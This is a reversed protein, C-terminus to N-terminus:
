PRVYVILQGTTPAIDTTVTVSTVVTQSTSSLGTTYSVGTIVKNGTSVEIVDVVPYSTFNPALTNWTIPINFSTLVGNGIVSSIVFTSLANVAAQGGLAYTSADGTLVTYSSGVAAQTGGASVATAVIVDGIWVAQGSAGGIFGASSVVWSKGAVSAAPYNPNAACALATPVQIPVGLNTVATNLTTISTNVTAIRGAVDTVYTLPSLAVGTATGTTVETQTAMRVSGFVTQSAVDQNSALLDYNAGVAVQTGGASAATALIIDGVNVALGSAGGILGASTVVWSKGAVSAAPYNPNTACALATPVQWPTGLATVTTTVASIRSAVDTVYTLPSLAINTATGTTVESQTAMRVNGFATTSAFDQSNDLIVYSSGVAAQTGGVSSAIAVIIDNVYVQLGSGGGILGASTVVWTKGAVSAAPYNPNAACALGTPVQLPTGLATITTNITSIRSAVDTVYTLPSLAVNTATGTTVETQTAMRVNGFVTQSAQDNINEVIYYNAGVAAQTGSASVAFAVIMDGVKVALGSAGGILGAVTVLWTKGAVTAAPYNPSASCDLGTPVQLPAALGSILGDVYGKTAADGSVTPTPLNQVKAASGFDLNAFQKIAM